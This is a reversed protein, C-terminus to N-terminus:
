GAEILDLLTSIYRRAADHSALGERMAIYEQTALLNSASGLVRSTEAVLVTDANTLLARGRGAGFVDHFRVHAAWKYTREGNTLAGIYDPDAFGGRYHRLFRERAEAPTIRGPPIVLDGGREVFPPLNDLVPDSQVEALRLTEAKFKRAREGPLDRFFVYLTGGHA